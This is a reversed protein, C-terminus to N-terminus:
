FGESRSNVYVDDLNKVNESRYGYRIGDFRQLNSSAESSAIIYYVSVGYKSHPLSVEEVTAGLARFTEAAKLVAERVGPQIGEGMYEKPLAVKMGKIDGTLGAAFDPVAVGASTSDKADFGSIASLALANDKVSRTMPGIQDLSSAFAILGFRSVRGYTPKMGVIGNFSAPQRISGGTDSGLSVPVQGAAVAAASGGSSGGPVKTHDWANKTKKFYSTETSAGMAFEDMNLKGVPIMDAQYVKEMVTADYIPEFNALIKSAATTLLDKTVINDKIGIPIGALVNSESIGKEDIAKALAMANSENLTIFSDVKPETEKIQEFTEATLDVASIEKSVLMGHLEELSKSVLETM